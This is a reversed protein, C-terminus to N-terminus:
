LVTNCISIRHVYMHIALYELGPLQIATNMCVEREKGEEKKMAGKRM